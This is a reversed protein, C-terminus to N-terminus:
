DLVNFLERCWDRAIADADYVGSWDKMASTVCEEYTYVQERDKCYEMDFVDMYCGYIGEDELHANVAVLFLVALIVPISLLLALFKNM